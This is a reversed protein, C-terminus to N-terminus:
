NDTNGDWDMDCKLEVDCGNFLGNDATVLLKDLWFYELYWDSVVENLVHHIQIM